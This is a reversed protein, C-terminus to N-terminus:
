GRGAPWGRRDNNITTGPRLVRLMWSASCAGSLLPVRSAKRGGGPRGLARDASDHHNDVDFVMRM